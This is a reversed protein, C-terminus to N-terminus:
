PILPPGTTTMRRQAQFRTATRLCRKKEDLFRVTEPRESNTSQSVRRLDGVGGRFQRRLKTGKLSCLRGAETGFNKAPSACFLSTKAVHEKKQHPAAWVRTRTWTENSRKHACGRDCLRAQFSDNDWM